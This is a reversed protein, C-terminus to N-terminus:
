SVERKVSRIVCANMTGREGRRKWPAQARGHDPCSWGSFFLSIGCVCLDHQAPDGGLVRLPDFSDWSPFLELSIKEYDWYREMKVFYLNPIDQNGNLSLFYFDPSDWSGNIYLFKFKPYGLNNECFRDDVALARACRVASQAKKIKTTNRLLM